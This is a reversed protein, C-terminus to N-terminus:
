SSDCKQIPQGAYNNDKFNDKIMGDCIIATKTFMSFKQFRPQMSFHLLMKTPINKSRFKSNIKEDMQTELSAECTNCITNQIMEKWYPLCDNSCADTKNYTFQLSAILRKTEHTM